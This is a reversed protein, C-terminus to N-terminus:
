YQAILEAFRKLAIGRHSIANKEDSPLEAMSKDKDIARFVPDYGFGGSGRPATLIEGLCEGVATLKNGDPFVCVINCVFKASRHEVNKMKELLYANRESDSLNEGGFSSTYVGPKGGLADVCLGSDDAIAALGSAKCIAEAKLLANELFTVGTEEVVIDIGLEDRTLVEFGLKGLIERMELIKGPNASALAFKM